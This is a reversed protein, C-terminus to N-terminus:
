QYSVGNLKEARAQVTRADKVGILSAAQEATILNANFRALTQHEMNLSQWAKIIGQQEKLRVQQLKATEQEAKIQNQLTINESQLGKHQEQLKRACTIIGKARGRWVTYRAKDEDERKVAAHYALIAIGLPIPAALLWDNQYFRLHYGLAMVTTIVAIGAETRSRSSVARRITRFHLMDILVGITYAILKHEGYAVLVPGYHAISVLVALPTLDGSEFFRAVGSWLNLREKM